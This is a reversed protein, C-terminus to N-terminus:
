LSSSSIIWLMSFCTMNQQQEVLQCQSIRKETSLREPVTWSQATVHIHSSSGTRMGARRPSPIQFNASTIAIRLSICFISRSTYLSMLLIPKCVPLSSSNSLAIVQCDMLIVDPRAQFRAEIAQVGNLATSVSAGMRELIMRFLKVNTVLDQSPCKVDTGAGYQYQVNM